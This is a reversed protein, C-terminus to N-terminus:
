IPVVSQLKEKCSQPNKKKGGKIGVGVGAGTEDGVVVYSLFSFPSLPLDSDIKGGKLIVASLGCGVEGFLWCDGVGGHPVLM